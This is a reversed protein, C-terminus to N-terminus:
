QRPWRQGGLSVAREFGLSHGAVTKATNKRRREPPRADARSGRLDLPTDPIRLSGSSRLVNLAGGGANRHEIESGLSAM